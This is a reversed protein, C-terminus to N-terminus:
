RLIGELADRLREFVQEKVIRSLSVPVLEYTPHEITGGLKVEGILYGAKHLFQGAARAFQPSHEFATPDLSAVVHANLAGAPGISGTATLTALNSYFTLDQTTLQQNRWAFTGAAERFTVHRLAPVSLLDAMEGFLPLEFLQGNTIQLRGQGQLSRALDDGPGALQCEANLSGSIAHNKWPTERILRSLELNTITVQASLPHHPQTIELTGTGAVTGGGVLATLTPVTAHGELQRYEGQLQELHMGGVTLEAARAKVGCEWANPTELPGKLFARGKVTGVPHWTRLTAASSAPLLDALDATELTFESYLTGTPTTPTLLLEGTTQARSQHFATTVNNITVRSGDIALAAEVSWEGWSGSADIEPTTFNVLTGNLRLPHDRWQGRVDTATLLGPEILWRGALHDMAGTAPSVFRADTLSLMAAAHPHPLPGQLTVRLQGAGELQTKAWWGKRYPAVAQWVAELPAEEVLTIALAPQQWQYPHAADLLSGSGRVPLGNVIATLAPAELGQPGVRITGKLREITPWPAPPHFTIEHMQITSHGLGVTWSEGRRFVSHNVVTIDGAGRLDHWQWRGQQTTATTQLSLAQPTSASKVSFTVTGGLERLAGAARGTLYPRVAELPFQRATFLLTSTRQRLDWTGQVLLPTVPTTQWQATAKVAVTHPLRLWARLEIRTLTVDWGPERSGNASVAGSAQGPERSQDEALLEGDLLVVKLPVLPFTRRPAGGPASDLAPVAKQGAPAPPGARHFWRLTELNWVGTRDRVPHIKPHVIRLTPVPLPALVLRDIDLFPQDGYRRDDFIVVRDVALGEWPRFTLTGFQVKRGTQEALWTAMQHRGPGPLFVTNLYWTLGVLLTVLLVGIILLVWVLRRLM